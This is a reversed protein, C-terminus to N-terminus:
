DFLSDLDISVNPLGAARVKGGTYLSKYQTPDLQQTLFTSSSVHCRITSLTM